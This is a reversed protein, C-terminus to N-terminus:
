FNNLKNYQKVQLGGLMELIKPAAGGTFMPAFVVGNETIQINNLVFGEFKFEEFEKM